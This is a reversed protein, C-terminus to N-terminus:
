SENKKKKATEIETCLQNLEGVLETHRSILYEVNVADRFRQLQAMQDFPLHSLDKRHNILLIEISGITKNIDILKNQMNREELAISAKKESISNELHKPNKDRM